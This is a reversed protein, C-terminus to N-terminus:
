EHQALKETQIHAEVGRASQLCDKFSSDKTVDKLLQDQVCKHSNHILFLFKLVEDANTSMFDAQDKCHHSYLAELNYWSHIISQFHGLTHKLFMLSMMSFM